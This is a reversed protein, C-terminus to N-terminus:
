EIARGVEQMEVEFMNGNQKAKTILLKTGPALLSEAENSFKSFASIPCATNAQAVLVCWPPPAVCVPWHSRSRSRAFRKSTTHTASTAADRGARMSDCLTRCPRGHLARRRRQRCTLVRRPAEGVGVM